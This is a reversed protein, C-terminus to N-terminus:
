SSLVVASVQLSRLAVRASALGQETIRYFVRPVRASVMPNLRETESQLWGRSEMTRLSEWATAQPIQLEAAVEYCCRKQPPASVFLKSIKLANITPYWGAMREGM